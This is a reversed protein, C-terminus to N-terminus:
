VVAEERSVNLSEGRAPPRTVLSGIIMGLFALGFSLAGALEPAIKKEELVFTNAVLFTIPGIAGL